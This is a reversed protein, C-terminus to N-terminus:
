ASAAIIDELLLVTPCCRKHLASDWTQELHEVCQAREDAGGPGLSSVMILGM